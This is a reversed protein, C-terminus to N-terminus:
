FFGGLLKCKNIFYYEDNEIGILIFDEEYLVKLDKESPFGKYIFYGIENLPIARVIDGKTKKFM